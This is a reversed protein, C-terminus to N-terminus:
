VPKSEIDWLSTDGYEIRSNGKCRCHQKLELLELPIDIGKEEMESIIEDLANGVWKADIAFGTVTKDCEVIRLFNYPLKMDIM